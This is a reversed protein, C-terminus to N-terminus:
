LTTMLISCCYEIQGAWFGIGSPHDSTPTIAGFACQRSCIWFTHVSMRGKLRRVAISSPLQYSHHGMAAVAATGPQKFSRSAPMSPHRQFAPSALMPLSSQSLEQCRGQFHAQALGSGERDLKSHNRSVESSPLLLGKNSLARATTTGAPYRPQRKTAACGRSGDGGRWRGTAVAITGRRM